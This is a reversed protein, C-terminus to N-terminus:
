PWSPGATQLRCGCGSQEAKGFVVVGPLLGLLLNISMFCCTDYAAVYRSCKPIPRVAQCTRPQFKFLLEIGQPTASVRTALSFGPCVRQCTRPGAGGGAQQQRGKSKHQPLSGLSLLYDLKTESGLELSGLCMSLRPTETEEGTFCYQLECRLFDLASSM